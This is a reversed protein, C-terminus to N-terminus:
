KGKEEVLIFYVSQRIYRWTLGVKECARYGADPMVERDMLCFFRSRPLLLLFAVLILTLKECFYFDANVIDSKLDM